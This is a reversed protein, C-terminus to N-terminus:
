SPWTRAHTDLDLRKHKMGATVTAESRRSYIFAPVQGPVQWAYPYALRAYGDFTPTVYFGVVMDCKAVETKKQRAPQRTYALVAIGTHLYGCVYMGQARAADVVAATESSAVEVETWSTWQHAVMAAVAFVVLVIAVPRRVVLFAAALAVGPVLWIFYRVVLFQPQVVVWM